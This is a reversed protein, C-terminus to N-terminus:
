GVDALYPWARRDKWVEGLRSCPLPPFRQVLGKDVISNCAEPVVHVLGGDESNGTLGHRVIYLVPDVLGAKLLAGRGLDFNVVYPM